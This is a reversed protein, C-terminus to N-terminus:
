RAKNFGKKSEMYFRPMNAVFEKRQIIPILSTTTYRCADLCDDHGDTEGTLRGEKDTEWLYNRYEKILEISRKTVSVQQNQLSAIGHRKSDKGKECPIISIGFQQIESISKPEASDAITLAPKLNKLANALDRNHLGRQYLVQDFILGGNFYYLDVIVAPDQTFGFDVGHRELRAQHPIEDIIQWGTYVRGEVEGLQGLGYVKWWNERYRRMELSKVINDDLAENDKYTLTLEEVDDRQKIDTYYWFESSPNWDLIIFDKTRIELQEFTELSINNAENVFLRDRRPGRVKGPQDVSFFEIKSGTEFTYTHETKNWRDDRYYNHSRMIDLFDRIAGRDLHPFSESVISTITPKKDTQALVILYQLISITKGASSGGPVARIRKSLRSIKKLATTKAYSM